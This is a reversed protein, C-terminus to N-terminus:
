GLEQTSFVRNQAADSCLQLAESATVFKVGPFPKMYAVLGELYQFARESEENSKTPPLKWQDPPPNAGRAFNTADWFERHVFECPHFYLSIIGGEPRSSIRTYFQQFKAEAEALNSWDEAPRLQPGERTNFINLLGGYWFPKGDLGVHPAEDLYVKVGWKKLAGYPQPAWSNGPQGYCTPAQGFIRRLDNYGPRERRTFEEIGSEWDLAAEYEAVTPHQSHTNSHYGIEHHALAGIVDRRGRRELTRGKEGVVKFTARIGQQTLFSAIRKAADDSEPLIYDETDFWLAIYVRGEKPGEAGLPGAGAILAGALVASLLALGALRRM